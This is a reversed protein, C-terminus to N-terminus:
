LVSRFNLSGARLGLKRIAAAPPGGSGDSGGSSRAAAVAASAASAAAEAAAVAAASISPGEMGILIAQNQECCMM